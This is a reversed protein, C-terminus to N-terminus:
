VCQHFSPSYYKGKKRTFQKQTKAKANERINQTREQLYMLISILKKLKHRQTSNKTKHTAM